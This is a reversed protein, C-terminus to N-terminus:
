QEDWVGWVDCKSTEDSGSSTYVTSGPELNEQEDSACMM